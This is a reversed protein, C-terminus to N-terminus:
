DYDLIFQLAKAVEPQWISYDDITVSEVGFFKVKFFFFPM